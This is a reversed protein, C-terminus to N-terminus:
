FPGPAGERSGAPLPEPFARSLSPSSPPNQIGPHLLIQPLASRPDGRGAKGRGWSKGPRHLVAGSHLGLEGLATGPRTKRGSSIRGGLAEGRRRRGGGAGPAAEAAAPAELLARHGRHRRPSCGRAGRSGAPCGWCGLRQGTDGTPAPVPCVTRTNNSEGLGPRRQPEGEWGWPEKERPFPGPIIASPGAARAATFWRFPGPDPCKPGM